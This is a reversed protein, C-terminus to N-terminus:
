LEKVYVKDNLRLDIYKIKKQGTSLAYESDMKLFKLMATKWDKQPMKVLLNNKLMLEFRGSTYFKIYKIKDYLKYKVLEQKIGFLDQSDHFDGCVPLLNERNTIKIYDITMGSEAILKNDKDDIHGECDKSLLVGLMKKEKVNFITIENSVDYRISIDEIIPYMQKIDKILATANYRYDQSGTYNIVFNTLLEVDILSHKQLKIRIGNTNNIYFKSVKTQIVQYTKNIYNHINKRNYIIVVFIAIIAFALLLRTTRIIVNRINRKLIIYKVLDTKSSIQRIRAM